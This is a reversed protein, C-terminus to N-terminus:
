GSNLFSVESCSEATGLAVKKLVFISLFDFLVSINDSM